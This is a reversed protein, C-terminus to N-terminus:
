GHKSVMSLLAQVNVLRPEVLRDMQKLGRRHNIILSRVLEKEPSEAQAPRSGENSNYQFASSGIILSQLIVNNFCLIWAGDTENPGEKYLRDLNESFARKGFIPLISTMHTFYNEMAKDLIDRPPLTPPLPEGPMDLADRGMMEKAMSRLAFLCNRPTEDHSVMDGDEMADNSNEWRSELVAEIEGFLSALSTTGYHQNNLLHHATQVSSGTTTTCNETEGNEAQHIM